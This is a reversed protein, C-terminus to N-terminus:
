NTISYQNIPSPVSSYWSLGWYSCATKFGLNSLSGSFSHTTGALSDSTRYPMAIYYWIVCVQVSSYARWNLGQPLLHLNATTIPILKQRLPMLVKHYPIPYILLMLRERSSQLAEALTDLQLSRGYTMLFVELKKIVQVISLPRELGTLVLSTTDVTSSFVWDV